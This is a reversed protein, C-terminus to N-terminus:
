RVAADEEADARVGYGDEFDIRVDEIPETSLKDTVRERLNEGFPLPPYEALAALAHKGWEGVVGAQFRDAPVYVTHVPQRSPVEGPYLRGLAEDAPALRRDIDEYDAEDLGM